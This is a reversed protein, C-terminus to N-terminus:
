IAPKTLNRNVKYYFHLWKVSKSITDLEFAIRYPSLQNHAWVPDHCENWNKLYKNMPNDIIPRTSSAKSVDNRLHTHKNQIIWM